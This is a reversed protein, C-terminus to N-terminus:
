GTAADETLIDTLAAIGQPHGIAVITDGPQLVFGPDPAATIQQGRVVAVISAATRTRARTDRLPRGGYRSGHPLPIRAATIGTIRRELDAIHDITVTTNLLDAVQRAEDRELPVTHAVRESDEPDYLVIDRRGDLRCIVGLRHSAATTTTHCIGIGPLAIREIAM